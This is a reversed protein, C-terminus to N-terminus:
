ESSPEPRGLNERLEHLEAALEAAAHVASFTKGELRQRARHQVLLQRLRWNLRAQSDDSLALEPREYFPNEINAACSRSRPHPSSRARTPRDRVRYRCL